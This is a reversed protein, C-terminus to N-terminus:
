CQQVPADSSVHVVSVPKKSLDKLLSQYQADATKFSLEDSFINDSDGNRGFGKIGLPSYLTRLCFWVDISNKCYKAINLLENYITQMQTLSLRTVNNQFASKQWSQSDRLLQYVVTAMLNQSNTAGTGITEHKAEIAEAEKTSFKRYTQRCYDLFKERARSVFEEPMAKAYNVVFIFEEQTSTAFFSEKRDLLIGSLLNQSIDIVSFESENLLTLVRFLYEERCVQLAKHRDAQLTSMLLATLAPKREALALLITIIRPTLWQPAFNDALVVANSSKMSQLIIPVVTLLQQRNQAGPLAKECQKILALKVAISRKDQLLDQLNNGNVYWAGPDDMKPRNMLPIFALILQMRIPSEQFKLHEKMVNFLVEVRMPDAAGLVSRLLHEYPSLQEYNAIYGELLVKMTREDPCSSFLNVINEAEVQSIYCNAPFFHKYENIWQKVRETMASVKDLEHAWKSFPAPQWPKDKVQPLQWNKDYPYAYTSPEIEKTEFLIQVAENLSVVPKPEQVIAAESPNDHLPDLAIAPSEQAVAVPPDQQASDETQEDSAVELYHTGGSMRKLVERCFALM